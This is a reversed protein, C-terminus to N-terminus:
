TSLAPANNKPPGQDRRPEPPRSGDRWSRGTTEYLKTCGGFTGATAVSGADLNRATKERQLPPAAAAHDARRKTCNRVGASPKPTQNKGGQLPFPLRRPRPQKGATESRTLTGATQFPEATQMIPPRNWSRRAPEPPRCSRGPPRDRIADLIGPPTNAM